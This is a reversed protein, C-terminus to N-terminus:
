HNAHLIMACRTIKTGRDCQQIEFFNTSQIDGNFFLWTDTTHKPDNKEAIANSLLTLFNADNRNMAAVDKAGLGLQQLQNTRINCWGTIMRVLGDHEKTLKVCQINPGKEKKSEGCQGTARRLGILAHKVIFATADSKILKNILSM